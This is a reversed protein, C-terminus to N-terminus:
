LNGYNLLRAFDECYISGNLKMNNDLCVVLCKPLRQVYLHKVTEQLADRSSKISSETESLYEDVLRAEASTYERMLSKKIEPLLFM